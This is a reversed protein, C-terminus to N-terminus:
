PNVVIRKYIMGKSTGISLVYTGSSVDLDLQSRFSKRKDQHDQYIIRGNIDYIMINLEDAEILELDLNLRSNTPNPYANIKSFGAELPDNISTAGGILVVFVQACGNTDSLVLNYRGASLNTLASDTAPAALNNSTWEYSYPPTGGSPVIAAAGNGSGDDDTKVITGALGACGAVTVQMVFQWGPAGGFVDPDYPLWIGSLFNGNGDSISDSRIWSRRPIFLEDTYTLGLPLNTKEHLSVMFPEAGIEVPPDYVMSKFAVPVDDGTITDIRSDASLVFEGSDSITYLSSYLPTGIMSSDTFLVTEVSEILDPKSLFFVSGMESNADPGAGIGFAGDVNGQFILNDRAITNLSVDYVLTDFNNSLDDDEESLSVAYSAFYFGTDVPVYFGQTIYGATDGPAIASIPGGMVDTFVLDPGDWLDYTVSVNTITDLGRNSVFALGVVTDVQSIPVRTFEQDPRLTFTLGADTTAADAKNVIGIDDILLLFQDSSRNVFAIYIDEGNFDALSFSRVTWESQESNVSFITTTFDAVDPGLTSILVDYGDPFDPDQAKANWQLIYEGTDPLSIQPTVLWDNAAGSPDYWSTSVAVTDTPDDFDPRAVWAASVYGVNEAPTLNDLNYLTFDEPIGQQFDEFLLVQAQLNSSFALCILCCITMLHRASAYLNTM